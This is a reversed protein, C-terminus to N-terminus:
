YKIALQLGIEPILLEPIKKKDFTFDDNFYASFFNFDADLTINKTIFWAFGSNASFKNGNNSAFEWLDKKSANIVSGDSTDRNEDKVHTYSFSIPSLSIGFNLAFKEPVAQWSLGLSTAPTFDLRTEKKRTGAFSSAGSVITEDLSRTHTIPMALSASFKLAFTKSATYTLGYTVSTPIQLDLKGKEELDKAIAKEWLKYKVGVGFGLEQRLTETKSLEFGASGLLRLHHTSDNKLVDLNDHIMTSQKNKQSEVGTEISFKWDKKGGLNMGFRLMGDTSYDQNKIIVNADYDIETKINEPVFKISALIGINNFGFIMKGTVSGDLMESTMITNIGVTADMKGTLKPTQGGLYGGIYLSGLKGSAGANMYHKGKHMYAYDVFGFVKKVKVKQWENVNCFYDVENSFLGATSKNTMSQQAYLSAFLMCFALMTLIFKKNITKM